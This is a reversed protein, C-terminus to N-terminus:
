RLLEQIALAQLKLATFLHGIWLALRVIALILGLMQLVRPRIVALIPRAARWNGCRPSPGALWAPLPRWGSQRLGSTTPQQHRAAPGM